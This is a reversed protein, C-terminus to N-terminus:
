YNRFKFKINSLGSLKGQKALDCLCSPSLGITNHTTQNISWICEENNSIESENLPRVRVGVTINESM